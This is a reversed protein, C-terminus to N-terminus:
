KWKVTGNDYVEMDLEELINAKEEFSIDLSDVYQIITNNYENFKFTNTSKILIAKQAVSLDLSNVYKIVKNKRTYPISNGQKDKDSEFEIAAYDLYTDVDIESAVITDITDSNYYKKYLYAKQKDNLGTGKIKNIIETKKESSLESAAEKYEDSDDDLGSLKAKNDKYNSVISSIETKTSFYTNKEARTLGLSNLDSAEEDNVKTWETEGESNTRKYYEMDGIQAYNSSSKVGTHEYIANEALENIQAQIEKARTYKESNSLDSSQIERKEAYLKSMQANVSNIYKNKLVDNDSANTKKAATTLEEKLNYFDSIDQNNMTSNTTFKSKLPALLQEGPTDADSTAEPTIMPLVVDGVGGSYQDILYNVKYPSVNLVEGLWRSFKDTSEDYQEAAPLDELRTPLLEGGYWAKNTAVQVIPSFVNEEIPNNPALNNLTLDIFSKLDAEDDGTVLNSMQQVGEQIVAMTRGKPIRIFNGDEDKWVIYYNQKVYDSLDEYEEDDEWLLANLLYAPAGAIAFKTALNLWGRVGNAKAERVNRVQQMAGQVSANLFTAGNRNLFKTLNGGAKFNTTVRSADLMAAEISAGSERSAIYESLRPIMEIYNNVKSITSLPPLDMIKSLGKNETKFTNDQSDFYSNHEGGNNMYEQYWYGKTLLQLHAEPIKAYTKAAHQSNILIDQTDKIANTLMFVPNYETLLGRRFNSIKNLPKITKSLLSSESIPKLADYMDKTIEFTVKEGNEFVTLTPNSGKAGEQLLEEQADISDIVEDVTAQSVVTDSGLTNKLEVGFSNKATARYTQLTRMAMTDFLPLIDSSGGTAKKVPANIGTRGTDLPVNIDMGTDTVRRTPVYHPYMNSWLDAIEQSIVGNNVLEQKDAELYDYVDQAYDMFEPHEAEYKNVIQQSVEATVSEGFVPKNEVGYKKQLSMRDVNHKHYVYDYFAKTLGRNEVEARIDNLSKSIQRSTKTYPDYEFHGQGIANQGRAESTLTYDWKAMLERNKYKLATDEFVAGKDLVNAKFIAWKRQNRQNETEPENVLVEAIQNYTSNDIVKEAKGDITLQYAKNIPEPISSETARSTSKELKQVINQSKQANQEKVPAISESNSVNEEYPIMNEDIPLSNYYDTIESAKLTDLYGQNAPVEIGDVTTYGNRLRQDLYFEIRKSIANNEAGEDKIIANLGKEIDAYSYKYKGGMGDLLEAIDDTTQRETGFYGQEGGTSYYLDDNYNRKGKVSRQLDGLMSQAEEQFFPKVEPNDYQYANVKRNGVDEYDRTEFLSKTETVENEVDPTTDEVKGPMNSEDLNDFAERNQQEIMPLDAETVPAFEDGKIPAEYTEPSKKYENIGKYLKPQGYKDRLGFFTNAYETGGTKQLTMLNDLEEKTPQTYEVEVEESVEKVPAVAEKLENVTETLTKIEEQLPAITQQLKVDEGYVNYNGKAAARQENFNSLSYEDVGNPFYGFENLDDGAFRIDKAKVKLEIVNGKGELNSYNHWEAYAKSPSVWDGENFTDGITARYITIEGEPNNRVKRLANLSENYAKKYWGDGGFMYWEPHEFVDPMNEEFNSADGYDTSPRHSMGYEPTLSYRIDEDSTPNTNDITKIQNSNFIAYSTIPNTGYNGDILQSEIGEVIEVADYGKEELIKREDAANEFPDSDQTIIQYAEYLNEAEGDEVMENLYNLGDKNNTAELYDTLIKDLENYDYKEYANYPHIIPNTVNAYLEMTTGQKGKNDIDKFRESFEKNTTVFTGFSTNGYGTNEGLMSNKFITFQNPTSHFMILLNGNEDRVKSDKFYEQQEKTLTRGQNDTLSYKINQDAEVKKSFLGVEHIRKSDQKSMTPAINKVQEKSYNLREKVNRAEQEGASNLYNDPKKPDAYAGRAFGERNQIAHQVEHMLTGRLSATDKILKNNITIASTIQSYGGNSKMDKFKVKYNKLEPYAEFLKDHKLIDGLKYTTNPNIKSIISSDRDSIEIRWQGDTGKFWGTQQRIEENKYGDQELQQAIGLRSLVNQNNKAGKVGAFSYQTNTEKQAVNQKYAEKFRKQVERLQKEEKTGKFRVVLDDILEKIKQFVTPKQTSLSDIFEADTFLYDGVLDATIEADINANDIGEYLENLTKQRGDFDGKTKAYNFIADQLEQYEQTGELLHTTEHGVITNLAKPSDVNILVTQKGDQNTRVLGNVQKGEVDHGLSKLEENNIFGYNTGKEKAIKAVKEVFEHSRTTNNFYKAASDYVAKETADKIKTNDYIFNESKRAQEQYSRALLGDQETITSGLISDIKNTDLTGKQLSEEVEQRIKNLESNKIKTSSIDIEGNEIKAKIAEQLATKEKASLIGGQETERATIAENVANEIAKQKSLESTREEVISDIVKQENQTYGTDYDRGTKISNVANGVNFGGGLVAGGIAAEIYSDVMEESFLAEQLTKDEYSMRGISSIAETLVEEGAEGFADIGFKTMTQVVKNQIKDTLLKKVGVDATKGGFSIGGSLKETLTEALASVGASVGAESFTAGQNLASEAEAGFSSTGTTLWWPVGVAQLGITAALQGGSQALSDTKDGWISTEDTDGDNFAKNLLGFPDGLNTYKAVKEENILDKKIFSQMNDQLDDNGFLGGVAGVGYAGTDITKEVIGLAGETVNTKIDNYSGLITKTIDGLQYGDNFAGTNIWGEYWKEKKKSTNSKTTTKKTTTTKVPAIESGRDLYDQIYNSPNSLNRPDNVKKGDVEVVYGLNDKIEQALDLRTKLKKKIAM